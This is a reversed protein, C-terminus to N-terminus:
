TRKLDFTTCSPNAVTGSIMEKAPRYVGDLDVMVYGAPQQLWANQMLRMSGNAPDFTGTMTFAGSPVGPNWPHESFSFVAQLAHTAPDHAITLELATLGQACSYVGIWRTEGSPFVIPTPATSAAVSVRGRDDPEIPTPSTSAAASVRSGDDPYFQDTDYAVLATKSTGSCAEGSAIIALGVIM